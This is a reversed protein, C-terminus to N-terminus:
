ARFLAKVDAGAWYRTEWDDPLDFQTFPNPRPTDAGLAFMVFMVLLWPAVSAEWKSSCPHIGDRNKRATGQGTRM